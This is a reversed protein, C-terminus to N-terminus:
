LKEFLREVALLMKAKAIHPWFHMTKTERYAIYFIHLIQKQKLNLKKVIM